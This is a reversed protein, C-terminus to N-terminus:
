LPKSAESFRLGENIINIAANYYRDVLLGCSYKMTRISLEKM